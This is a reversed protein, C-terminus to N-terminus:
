QRWALPIDTAVGYAFVAQATGDLNTNVYWVGNRVICLDAKGDGNFDFLLPIDGPAGGFAVSIDATGNRNTDIYWIGNRYIVLDAIGDGNVDGALPIDGALGGFGFTMTAVGDQATSVFWQGGRYIVLDDRGDGNFDALLPVDGAIGGFAAAFDAIGDRNSDAYWAGNRYVVLDYTRSPDIRGVLPKDTPVGFYVNQDANHDFDVDIFFRATSPRWVATTVNAPAPGSSWVVTLKPRLTTDTTYESSVFYKINSGSGIQTLIWGNNVGVGSTWQRLRGTVDFSVWGPNFSPTVLADATASYDTGAGSAGGVTWPVGASANTWTTEAEVWPKLLANLQLTDDYFQKYLALTASQIVAGNPVPGGEAQFIAFRVLPRYTAPDLNLATAAGRVVTPAFADLYTDSVGAYGALGRQLVSTTLTASVTFPVAASATMGGVNDVAVAVVAYSGVLIPAINVTYPPSTAQGVKTGNLYYEVRAIGGDPDSATAQLNIPTAPAVTTGAIPATISVSPLANGPPNPQVWGVPKYIWIDGDNIDQLGVFADYYPAYRWKGLIGTQVDGPPAASPPPPRQTATWGTTTNGAAPPTLEWMVGAGCWLLFRGRPPDYDLGCFQINLSNAALWSQLAAISANGQVSQDPNFPGATTLDWFQFPTTNNGTRVFLKHVPDYGCSTQGAVGVAYAGVKAIQDLAPNALTTLQYRYLNLNTAGQNASAVYVVDLGGETASGTCGQVHTGPLPQGALWRHIDRNQWMQGGTIPAPLVRRVNSGTSGGVKNGDALNPNFLYPGTLRTQTTPNSELPRIFPGGNGWAAGGWTLFRDAVPLFLNNDYTHSSIPANDVGDIAIKGLLPDTQIESPLSAREWLLSSSHWRYVDNGPYNAHGGGWLILDGRNSDWAFGSWAVIIKSPPQTCCGDLPELSPSTWVNSYLNANAHLWTNEPMQLLLPLLPGSFVYPPPAQAAAIGSCAGVLIAAIWRALRRTM